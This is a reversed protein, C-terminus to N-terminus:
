LRDSDYAITTEVTYVNRRFICHYKNYVSRIAEGYAVSWCYAIRMQSLQEGAGSWCNYVNRATEWCVIKWAFRLSAM